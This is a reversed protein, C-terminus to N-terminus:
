DDMAGAAIWARVSRIKKDSLGGAPPPMGEDVIGDSNLLKMMLYSSDPDGPVVRRVSPVQESPVDVLEQYSEDATLKLGASGAGSGHCASFGCSPLLVEDNVYTFDFPVAATPSPTPTTDSDSSCGGMALSSALLFSLLRLRM